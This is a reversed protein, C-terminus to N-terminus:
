INIYINLELYHQSNRLINFQIKGAGVQSDNIIGNTPSSYTLSYSEIGQDSTLYFPIVAFNDPLTLYRTFVAEDAVMEVNQFLYIKDDNEEYYFDVNINTNCTIEFIGTYLGLLFTVLVNDLKTYPITGDAINSGTITENAINVGTITGGSIDEGLISGTQIHSSNISNAPTTQLSTIAGASLNSLDITGTSIDEGLITRNQIHTSNISNAPLTVTGTFTPNASNVKNNSLETLQTQINRTAGSVFALQASTM